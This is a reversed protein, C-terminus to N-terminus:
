NRNTGTISMPNCNTPNFTFGPRDIRVNVYGIWPPIGDIIHPLPNTTLSFYAAHSRIYIKARPILNQRNLRGLYTSFRHLADAILSAAVSLAVFRTVDLLLTMVHM